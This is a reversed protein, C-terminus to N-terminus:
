RTVDDTPGLERPRSSSIENESPGDGASSSVREVDPEGDRLTEAVVALGVGNSAKVLITDGAQMLEGVLAAAAAADAVAHDGGMQAALPGVTVLM